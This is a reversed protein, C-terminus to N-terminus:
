VEATVINRTTKVETKSCGTNQVLFVALFDPLWIMYVVRCSFYYILNPAFHWVYPRWLLASAERQARFIARQQDCEEWPPYGTINPGFYFTKQNKKIMQQVLPFTLLGNLRSSQLSIHSVVVPTIGKKFLNQWKGEAM